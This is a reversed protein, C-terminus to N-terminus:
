LNHMPHYKATKLRTPVSRALDCANGIYKAPTLELLRKKDDEPIDLKAIIEFYTEKTFTQGRSANKIIDYANPVKNKRMVTQLAETLISWEKDLKEAIKEKDPAVKALGKQLSKLAVLTHGFVEGFARQASSDTLDRQLRSIPLKGALHVALANAIGFNAEANEFDIPNVKHPMTSSGVEGKVVSQTFIGASIYAWMDRSLDTLITSCLALENLFRAQNDHPEIQTTVPKHRIGLDEVFKQSVLQWNIEPYAIMDAAHTGTAGNLKGTSTASSSLWSISEFLRDLFVGIEKGLTTPTAPQGHTRALMAISAYEEAKKSLDVGIKNLEPLLIKERVDVLMLAYALNNIDESTRGFHILELYNEFGGAESLRERIWIEVAKVDHNTTSEIEKIRKADKISFDVALAKVTKKMEDSFKEVDPLIGGALTRLWESEVRVRYKILGFESVIESLERTRNAYRGDLPSVAMLEHEINM